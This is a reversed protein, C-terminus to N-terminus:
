DIVLYSQYPVRPDRVYRCDRYTLIERIALSDGPVEALGLHDLGIISGKPMRDRVLELCKRTPEYVGLDFYALAIITEPNRAIYAPLTETVDGKIIEHKKIHARPGLANHCDLIHDLSAEWKEGTASARRAVSAAVREGDQPSSSIYGEFTDFGIIKRGINQPEYITRFSTFLALNQGFHCGFEMICGPVDLVKRYLDHMFLIRALSPRTLFLGLHQLLEAPGIPCTRLATELAEYAAIESVSSFIKSHAHSSDPAATQQENM